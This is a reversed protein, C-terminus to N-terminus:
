FKKHQFDCLDYANMTEGIMISYLIEHKFYLFGICQETM